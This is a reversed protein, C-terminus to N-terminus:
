VHWVHHSTISIHSPLDLQMFIDLSLIVAMPCEFLAVIKRCGGKRIFLIEGNTKELVHLFVTVRGLCGIGSSTFYNYEINIFIYFEEDDSIVCIKIYILM